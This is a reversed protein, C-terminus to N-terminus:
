KHINLNKNNHNKHKNNKNKTNNNKNMNVNKTNNNNQHNNFEKSSIKSANELPKEKIRKLSTISYNPKFLYILLFFIFMNQDSYFYNKAKTFINKKRNYTISKLFVPATESTQPTPMSSMRFSQEDLLDDSKLSFDKYREPSELDPVDPWSNIIGSELIQNKFIDSPINTNDDEASCALSSILYLLVEESNYDVEKKDSDKEFIHNEYNYAKKLRELIDISSKKYNYFETHKYILSSNICILCQLSIDIDKEAELNNELNELLYDQLDLLLSLCSNDNSYEYFINLALCLKSIEELPLDYINEKYEKLMKLIDLSFNKYEITDKDNFFKSCNYYSAMLLAQDSFNFKSSKDELRLESDPSDSVDKKDIFVGEFNRLNTAYFELQKKALDLYISSFNSKDPHISELNRYYKSLELISLTMFANSSIPIDRKFKNEIWKLKNESNDLDCIGKKYICLLPSFSNFISIDNSPIIKHRFEKNHTSIGFKSYLVIIKESEKALHFLQNKIHSKNLTKIRLFPGIYRLIFM